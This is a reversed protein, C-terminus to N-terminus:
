EGKEQYKKKEETSNGLVNVGTAKEIENNLNEFYKEDKKAQNMEEVFFHAFKLIGNKRCRFNRFLYKVSILLFADMARNYAMEETDELVKKFRPDKMAKEAIQKLQQKKQFREYYGM